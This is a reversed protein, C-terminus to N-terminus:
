PPTALEVKLRGFRKSGGAAADTFTCFEWTDDVVEVQPDAAPGDWSVSAPHDAFQVQYVLDPSASARRRWFSIRLAGTPGRSIAPMGHVPPNRSAIEGGNATTPDVGLAYALCNKWGSHRPDAGPSSDLGNWAISDSWSSFTDGDYDFLSTNSVQGAATVVVPQDRGSGAPLTCTISTHSIAVGPASKGGISVVPALGFNQGRITIPINGATPGNGPSISTISPADYNFFAAPSTQEGATLTLPINTGQGAPLTFLVQTHSSGPLITAAQGSIRLTKELGFNSGTLTIVTGGGTPFSAASIGTIAPAQYDFDLAASSQDGATVVVAQDAGEGAPLDVQLMTHTAAVALPANRGGISVSPSVGFNSGTLTLRTGGATPGSAPTIADLVPPQYAISSAASLRGDVSVQVPVSSGQGPPLTCIIQTHSASSFQTIQQGGVKVVRNVQGFNIGTLTLTTGGSTPYSAPSIDTIVPADYSFPLTNSSRQGSSVVVPLDIGQGPPLTCTIVNHSYGGSTVPANQGGVSVSGSLGFNSGTLTLITGGATPASSFTINAIQPADYDFNVANSSRGLTEVVVAKGAGQGAPTAAVIETHSYSTGATFSVSQGGVTVNGSSGFNRGTLTILTGGGTTGSAPSITLIEPPDYDLSLTNSEVGAVTVTVANGTGEGAPLTCVIQSHSSAGQVLPASQTGVRVLPNLGFNSGTLTLPTGGATPFSAASIGTLVPAGYSFSTAPSVQGGSSVSVPLSAGQGAPLAFILQSHSSPSPSISAGNFLVVPSTGFNSGTLTILSGGATPGSAPTIGTIAPPTYSFSVSNSSRQASTVVVPLNAGQGEPLTCIIRTHSYGGSTVPANLTGVSVSGSFGFNKGTLTILSGGQTPGTAPSISTLEPADYDLTLTNSSQGATNVTVSQNKGQGAPLTCIIQTHSPVGTLPAAYGGISVTPTIGFNSGTLTVTTGGATPASAYNIGTIAPPLYSFEASNSIQGGSNVVVPQNVGEGAPSNVVLQTHTGSTVQANKGGISVTPSVGFNTGTITISTNGATGGTTPTIATIAPPTYSVAVSNSTQGATTVTVPISSGQGAPVTCIITTHTRSTVPFNTSGGTVVPNLGFNSGVLTLSTSGATPVTAPTFSTIAPPLYSFTAANSTQGAFTVTLQKGAGEGAPTTALIRTDTIGTITMSASGLSVTTFAATTGFGSGNITITTGGSTPGTSPDISTILPAALGFASSLALLLVSHLFRPITPMAPLISNLICCTKEPSDM